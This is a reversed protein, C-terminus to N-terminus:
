TGDGTVLRTAVATRMPPMDPDAQRDALRAVAARALDEVSWTVMPPMPGGAFSPRYAELHADIAWGVMDLDRGLVLKLSRAAAALGLAVDTWLALVARPRDRRSLM